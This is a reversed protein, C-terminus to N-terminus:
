NDGCKMWEQTIASTVNLQFSKNDSKEVLNYAKQHCLDYKTMEVYGSSLEIKAM